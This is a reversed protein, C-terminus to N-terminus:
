DDTKKSERNRNILILANKMFNTFRPDKRISNFDAQKELASIDSLGNKIAEQLFEIAKPVNGSAASIRAFLYFKEKSSRNDGAISLNIVNRTALIGPDLDFGKHWEASAKQPKKKEFYLSGLNMHFSANTASMHIAKKFYKEAKKLDHLAFFASGLNNVSYSYQPNLEISRRFAAIAEAYLQLQSYTIGTRNWVVTNNPDLRISELYKILAPYFEKRGFAIDAEESLAAAKASNEESVSVRVTKHACGFQFFELAIFVLCALLYYNSFQVGSAKRKQAIM